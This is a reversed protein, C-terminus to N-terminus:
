PSESRFLKKFTERFTRSGIIYFGLNTTHNVTMFFEAVLVLLKRMKENYESNGQHAFVAGFTVGLAIVVVLFLSSVLLLAIAADKEHAGLEGRPNRLRRVILINSFMITGFILFDTAPPVNQIYVELVERPIYRNSVESALCIGNNQKMMTMAPANLLFAFLILPIMIFTARRPTGQQRYDHPKSVAWLRDLTLATLNFTASTRAWVGLSRMVMCTYDNNVLNSWQFWGFTASQVGITTSALSDTVALNKMLGTGSTQHKLRSATVYALSNCALGFSALGVNVWSM